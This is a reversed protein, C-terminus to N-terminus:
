DVFIISNLTNSIIIVPERANNSLLFFENLFIEDGITKKDCATEM